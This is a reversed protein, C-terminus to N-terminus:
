LLELTLASLFIDGGVHQACSNCNNDVAIGVRGDNAMQLSALFFRCIEYAEKGKMINYFCPTTTEYKSLGDLKGLDSGPTCSQVIEEGCAHIDYRPRGDEVQMVPHLREQWQRVRKAMHTEFAYQEAEHMYQDVHARVLDVYTPQNGTAVATGGTGFPLVNATEAISDDGAFCESTPIFPIDDGAEPGGVPEVEWCNGYASSHVEDCNGQAGAFRTRRGALKRQHRRAYAYECFFAGSRSPLSGTWSGLSMTSSAEGDLAGIPSEKGCGGNENTFIPM